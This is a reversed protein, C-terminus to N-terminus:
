FYRHELFLDWMQQLKTAFKM